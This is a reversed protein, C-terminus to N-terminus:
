TTRLIQIYDLSLIISNKTIELICNMELHMWWIVIWANEYNM